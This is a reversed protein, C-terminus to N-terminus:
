ILGSIAIYTSMTPINSPKSLLEEILWEGAINGNTM